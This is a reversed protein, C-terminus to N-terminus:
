AADGAAALWARPSCGLVQTFARSFSPPSAYGLEAAVAAVSSGARLRDQAVTLRWRTVYEAPPQGVTERFRAAFASRSMTAERAMTALTWPRGPSEHVAVLTRALREDALGPLLGAPLALDDTHDLLWRFLQVLVVEFLRDAVVRSGCRVADVEAFLLDLATGLGAVADLPIVLVPPLTRVLPHTEGGDFDLTACAFDAGETPATRFAHELPRPYLLLSPRDVHVTELRGGPGQHTLDMEGDRLVHLFGRGPQAAFTTVGCLPGAHFLRTRVRFRELLPSLRDLHPM